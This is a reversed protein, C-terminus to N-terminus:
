KKLTKRKSFDEEYKITGDFKRDKSPIISYQISNVVNVRNNVLLQELYITDFFGNKFKATMVMAGPLFEDEALFLNSLSPVTLSCNGNAGIISKCAHHHGKLLIYNGTLDINNSIGMCLPHTVFIKDNKVNIRGHGYGVPVIDPRFNRLYTSFDIGYSTLSDIDHNGFVIFSVINKDFPYNSIAYKMQELPNNHKKSDSRGINIGDLFDGAIIIIHINNVICYDCIKHWADIAELESGAHLDSICMATFTDCCPDTIININNKKTNWSLDKKASYIIEGDYYYKKNFEMGLQRLGRFLNYLQKHSLNLISGIENITLGQEILNILKISLESM